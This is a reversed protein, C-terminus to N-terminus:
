SDTHLKYKLIDPSRRTDWVTLIIIQTKFIEYYITYDLIHFGRINSDETEFSNYPFKSIFKASRRFVRILKKSYTNTKNRENYFDKIKLLDKRSAESWIIPRNM